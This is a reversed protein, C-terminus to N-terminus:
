NASLHHSPKGKRVSTAHQVDLPLSSRTATEPAHSTRNIKTKRPRFILKRPIVATSFFPVSRSLNSTTTTTLPLTTQLQMAKCPHTISNRFNEPHQDLSYKRNSGERKVVKRQMVRPTATSSCTIHSTRPIMIAGLLSRLRSSCTASATEPTTHSNQVYM